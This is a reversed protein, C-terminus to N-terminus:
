GDESLEAARAAGREVEAGIGSDTIALAAVEDRGLLRGLESKTGFLVCAGGSSAALRELEDRRGAADRALVLTPTGAADRLSARVADTGIVLYRSRRAALLLGEVRREYIRAAQQSLVSADVEVKTRLSRAFGGKAAAVICSRRPHVSVGRGPLRHEPDPALRPPVGAVAFRLLADRPAAERCGACTRVPAARGRAGDTGGM